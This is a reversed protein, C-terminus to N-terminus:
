FNWVYKVLFRFISCSIYCVYSRWINLRGLIGVKTWQASAHFQSVRTQILLACRLQRLMLCFTNDFHSFIVSFYGIIQRKKLFMCHLKRLGIFIVSMGSQRFQSQLLIVYFNKTLPCYNRSLKETDNVLQLCNEREQRWKSGNNMYNIQSASQVQSFCTQCLHSLTSGINEHGKAKFKVFDLSKVSFLLRIM